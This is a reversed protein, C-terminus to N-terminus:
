LPLLDPFEDLVTLNVDHVSAHHGRIFSAGIVVINDAVEFHTMSPEPLLEPLPYRGIHRPLKVREAVGGRVRREEGLHAEICCHEGSDVFVFLPVALKFLVFLKDPLGFEGEGVRNILSCSFANHTM